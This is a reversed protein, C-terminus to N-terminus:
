RDTRNRETWALTQGAVVVGLRESRVPRTPWSLTHSGRETAAGRATTGETPVDSSPADSTSPALPLGSHQDSPLATDDNRTPHATDTVGFDTGGRNNSNRNETSENSLLLPILVVGAVIVLLLLVILTVWLAV